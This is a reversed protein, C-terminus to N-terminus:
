KRILPDRAERATTHVTKKGAAGMIGINGNGIPSTYSLTELGDGKRRRLLVSDPRLDSDGEIEDGVRQHGALNERSDM